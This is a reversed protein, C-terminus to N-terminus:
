FTPQKFGGFIFYPARQPVASGDGDLATATGVGDTQGSGSFIANGIGTTGAVGNARGDGDFIIGFVSPAFMWQEDEDFFVFLKARNM